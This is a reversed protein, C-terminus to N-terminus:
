SNNLGRQFEHITGVIAAISSFRRPSFEENPIRIGYTTETWEVLDFLGLSDVTSDLADSPRLGDHYGPFRSKLYSRVEREVAHPHM